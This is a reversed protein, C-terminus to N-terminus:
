FYKHNYFSAAIEQNKATQHVPVVLVLKEPVLFGNSDKKYNGRTNKFAWAPIKDARVESLTRYKGPKAMNGVYYNTVTDLARNGRFEGNLIRMGINYCEEWLRSGRAKEIKVKNVDNSNFCSFQLNEHLVSEISEGRVLARTVATRVVGYVYDFNGTEVEGIAEGYIADALVSADRLSYGKNPNYRTKQTPNELGNNKEPEGADAREIARPVPLPQYVPEAEPSVLPNEKVARETLGAASDPNKLVAAGLGTLVLGVLGVGKLFDRRTISM